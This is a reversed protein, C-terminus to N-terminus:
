GSSIPWSVLEWQPLRWEGARYASTSSAEGETCSPNFSMLSCTESLIWGSEEEDGWHQAPKQGGGATLTEPHDCGRATSRERCCCAGQHEEFPEWSDRSLRLLLELLCIPDRLPAWFGSCSSHHRGATSHEPARHSQLFAAATMCHKKLFFSFNHVDPFVLWM